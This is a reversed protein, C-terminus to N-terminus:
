AAAGSRGPEWTGVGAAGARWAQLAIRAARHAARTESRSVYELAFGHDALLRRIREITSSVQASSGHVARAVNANDTVVVSGAPHRRHVMYAIGREVALAEAEMVKPARAVEARAVASVSGTSGVGIGAILHGEDFAADVAVRRVRAM